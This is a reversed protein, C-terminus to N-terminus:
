EKDKLAFELLTKGIVIQDGACLMQKKIPRGNVYTGDASGTDEIEYRGGRDHILAHRPEIAADKFLYVDCKPSSGIVTTNRFLIFQKGALPGARMLLWATKTWHEVLGIFLGVMLGIVAFGVGRSMTAEDPTGLLVYIPDFLMGGLLGGLVGGVVGNIVVKRDRLAIGQGLGAAIAAIAWAAGRGMMLILFGFGTPVAEEGRPPGVTVAMAVMMLFVAGAVFIAVAGVVFGIGLGVLSSIVARMANRCVLGEVLGLLFGVGGMVTPFLLYEAITEGQSGQAEAQAFYPEIIAWAVLAGVMGAMALYFCSSYLVRLVLPQPEAQPMERSLVSQAEIYGDVKPSYLDENTLTIQEAPPM